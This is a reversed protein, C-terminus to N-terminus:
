FQRTYQRVDRIGSGIGLVHDVRRQFPDAALPQRKPESPPETAPANQQAPQSGAQAGSAQGESMAVFPQLAVLLKEIRDKRVALREFEAGVEILDANAAELAARYIENSTNESKM